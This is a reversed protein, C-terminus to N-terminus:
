PHQGPHTSGDVLPSRVPDKVYKAELATADSTRFGDADIKEGGGRM